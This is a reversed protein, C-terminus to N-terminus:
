AHKTDNEFWGCEDRRRKIVREANEDSNMDLRRRKHTFAQLKENCAAVALQSAVNQKIRQIYAVWDRTNQAAQQLKHDALSKRSRLALHRQFMTHYIADKDTQAETKTRENLEESATVAELAVRTGMKLTDAEIELKAVTDKCAVHRAHSRFVQNAIRQKAERVTSRAASAPEM